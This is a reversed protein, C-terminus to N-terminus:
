SVSLEACRERRKTSLGHRSASPHEAGSRALTSAVGAPLLAYPSEFGSTFHQNRKAAVEILDPQVADNMFVASLLTALPSKKKPAELDLVRIAHRSERDILGSDCFKMM